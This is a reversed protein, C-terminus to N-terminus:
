LAPLLGNPDYRSKLDQLEPLWEGFASKIEKQHWHLHQHMQALHVGPCDPELTQWVNELWELSKIRGIEDGKQWSATIWPKWMSNTNIFSYSGEHNQENFGGLQQASIM